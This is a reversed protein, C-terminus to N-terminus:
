SSFGWGPVAVLYRGLTAGEPHWLNRVRCSASAGCRWNSSCSVWPSRYWPIPSRLRGAGSVATCRRLCCSVPVVCLGFMTREMTARSQGDRPPTVDFM